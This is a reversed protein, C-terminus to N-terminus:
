DLQVNGEQVVKKWRQYEGNVFRQFEAASSAASDAGMKNLSAILAPQKLVTELASSILTIIEPRTGAPAMMGYWLSVDFGPITEAVSPVNPLVASRQATGVALAKLKGAEILPLAGPIGSFVIALNGNVLDALAPPGGRYAIHIIDIGSMSKLVEGALHDANGIGASGFNLRGPQTKALAIFEAVNNVPLSVPAVLVHPMRTMQAVAILDKSPNFSLNKYISPAIALGTNVALLTYG